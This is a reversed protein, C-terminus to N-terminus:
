LSNLQDDCQWVRTVNRLHDVAEHTRIGSYLVITGDTVFCVVKSNQLPERFFQLLTLM